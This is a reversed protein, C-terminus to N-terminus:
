QQSEQSFYVIKKNNNVIFFVRSRELNSEVMNELSDVVNILVPATEMETQGTGSLDLEIYVLVWGNENSKHGFSCSENEVIGMGNTGM